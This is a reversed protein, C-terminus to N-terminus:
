GSVAVVDALVGERLCIKEYSISFSKTWYNASRFEQASPRHLCVCIDHRGCKKAYVQIRDLALATIFAAEGNSSRIHLLVISVSEKFSIEEIEKFFDGAFSDEGIEDIDTISILVLEVQNGCNMLVGDRREVKM